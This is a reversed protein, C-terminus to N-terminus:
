PGTWALMQTPVLRVAGDGVTLATIVAAAVMAALGLAVRTGYARGGSVFALVSKALAAAGLLGLVALRAEDPTLVRGAFLNAVTAMAAHQEALATLVAATMAGRAGLWHNLAASVFLVVTVVLAFGLAHRFNFMRSESTPMASADVRGGRIGLLGGALVVAAAAGLPLAVYPMLRPALALIIPVFLTLSALNALMAAGVAPALLSPADKVRQGFGAVAATSSVYGAFFGAIALGWRNGVARLVVHGLASIAMVLVVLLWLKRPNFVAFPGLTRDPLLPLVVMACALLILGDHVERESLWERALRHMPAKAYLLVALVVGLGAALPPSLLTLAGLMTTLVLAIEGTIGPEVQGSRYYSVAGLAGVIVLLAVLAPLGLAHAVTGAVAAIAHTRLGAALRWDHGQRRERVAGVLLGLGLATALPLLLEGPAPGFANV